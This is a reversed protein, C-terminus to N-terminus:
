TLKALEPWLIDAASCTHLLGHATGSCMVHIYALEETHVLITWNSAPQRCLEVNKSFFEGERGVMDRLEELTLHADKPHQNIFIRGTQLAHWRMETDLAFYRFSSHKAFQGHGYRM